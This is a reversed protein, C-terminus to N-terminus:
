GNRQVRRLAYVLVPNVCRTFKAMLGGAGVSEGKRGDVDDERMGMGTDFWDMGKRQVGEYVVERLKSVVGEGHQLWIVQKIYNLAVAGGGLAALQITTHRVGGILAARDAPTAVLTDSPYSAFATFANGIVISMYPQVLSALISLVIGPLLHLLCDKSNSLALLGRFTPKIPAVPTRSRPTPPPSLELDPHEEITSIPIPPLTPYLSRRAQSIPRGELQAEFTMAQGKADRGPRSRSAFQYGPMTKQRRSGGQHYDLGFPDEEEPEVVTDELDVSHRDDFPSDTTRRPTLYALEVDNRFRSPFSSPPTSNTSHHTPPSLPLATNVARTYPSQYSFSISTSSSGQRVPTPRPYQQPTTPTGLSDHQVPPYRSEPTSPTTSPPRSFAPAPTRQRRSPGPLTQDAPFTSPLLSPHGTYSASSSSM